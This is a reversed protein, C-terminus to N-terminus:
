KRDWKTELLYIVICIVAWIIAFTLLFSVSTGGNRIINADVNYLAYPPVTVEYSDVAVSFYNPYFNLNLWGWGYYYQAIPNGALIRLFLCYFLSQCFIILNDMKYLLGNGVFICHIAM